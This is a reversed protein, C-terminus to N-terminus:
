SSCSSCAVGHAGGFFFVRLKRSSVQSRLNDLIDAGAIREKIPLGLLRAIWTIPTGDSTILDSLLLSARFEAGALSHTLFNLNATSVLFPAKLTAAKKIEQLTTAMDVADIPMGLVCYVERM